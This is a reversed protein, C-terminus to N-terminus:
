QAKAAAGDTVPKEEAPFSRGLYATIEALEADTAVAGNNAMTEVVEKWGDLTLRQQVVVEPAHCSSCVRLTTERGPGEPLAAAPAAQPAMSAAASITGLLGCAALGGMIILRKSLIGEQKPPRAGFRSDAEQVIM